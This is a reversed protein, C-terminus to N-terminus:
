EGQVEARLRFLTRLEANSLETLWSEGAGIVSGAVEKKREILEDIHEEITGSCIFAHV